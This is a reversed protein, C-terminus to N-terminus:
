FKWVIIRFYFNLSVRVEFIEMGINIGFSMLDRLGRVEWRSEVFFM